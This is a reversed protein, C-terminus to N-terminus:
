GQPKALGEVVEGGLATLISPAALIKRDRGGGGLIIRDPTMVREDIWVPLNAPRGFPTVGGLVIGTLEETLEAPAFSAKRTGLRKRVVKNVDVRTTALVICMALAPPEARGMVVLANASDEMAFGYAECFAATDALAPDCEVVEYAVGTVDAAAIVADSMGRTFGVADRSALHRSGRGDEQSVATM